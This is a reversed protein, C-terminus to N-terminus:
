QTRRDTTSALFSLFLSFSAVGCFVSVKLEVRDLLSSSPPPTLTTILEGLAVDRISITQKVKVDEGHKQRVACLPDWHPSVSLSVSLVPTGGGRM